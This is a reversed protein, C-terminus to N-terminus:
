LKPMVVNGCLKCRVDVKQDGPRVHTPPLGVDRVLYM